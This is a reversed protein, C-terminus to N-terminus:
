KTKCSFFISIFHTHGYRKKAYERLEVVASDKTYGYHSAFEKGVFIVDAHEALILNNASPREFEVSIKIDPKTEIKNWLVILNIMKMTEEHNRAKFVFNYIFFCWTM